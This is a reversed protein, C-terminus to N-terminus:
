IKASHGEHKHENLFDSYHSKNIQINHNITRCFNEKSLESILRSITVRTAGVIEGPEAHTCNVKLQFWNGDIVHSPNVM